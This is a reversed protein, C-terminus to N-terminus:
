RPFSERPPRGAAIFVTESEAMASREDLLLGEIAARHGAWWADADRRTWTGAVASRELADILALASGPRDAPDKALCASVVEDFVPDVPRGLRESMPVPTDELHSVILSVPSDADFVFAGTVLYYAVTGLSYLDSRFTANEASHVMEPALFAPTGMIAHDATLTKDEKRTSKVLGFDLVKVTDPVGGRTCLFLNAPKIDRHVLGHTHAEALAGAAQVLIHIARSEPMPGFREVLADLDIGDLYEMAYYFLGEATRGYDYIAVTNPHTLEATRRVEREFREVAVENAASAPRIVKIATPRRLLAHRARYVAGMGGEGLKEEIQYQGLKQARKEARQARRRQRELMMAVVSAIVGATAVLVVLLLFIGVLVRLPRFAEDADTETIVGFGYRDLWTWAGVVEVGRYDRYGDVDVGADGAVAAAAARTLPQDRRLVGTRHGATLDGGPDRVALELVASEADADVLRLSRLQSLFRSESILAGDPGVAYTEGTSGARAARLATTFDRPSLGLVVVGLFGGGADTVPAGVVMRAEGDSGRFPRSVLTEGRRGAAVVAVLAPGVPEGVGLGLGHQELVVGEADVLAIGFFLQGEALFSAGAYVDSADPDAFAARLAPQFRPSRALASAAREQAELWVTAGSAVADRLALLRGALGDKMVNAVTALVIGGVILVALMALASLTLVRRRGRRYTRDATSGGSLIEPAPSTGSM